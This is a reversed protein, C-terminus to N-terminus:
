PAVGPPRLHFCERGETKLPWSLSAARSTVDGPAVLFSKRRGGAPQLPDRAPPWSIVICAFMCVCKKKNTKNVCYDLCLNHM